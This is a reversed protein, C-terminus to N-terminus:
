GVATQSPSGIALYQLGNTRVEQPSWFNRGDVVAKLGRSALVSWNLKRYEEHATSLIFLDAGSDELRNCVEFGRGTIEHASYLPDHVQFSINKSRLFDAIKFSTSLTDEKVGGRFALGLIVVRPTPIQKLAQELIYVHALDNVARGQEILSLKYGINEASRILFYPYVPTCHGGVGIGPNLLAAEGDTNALRHITKWEVGFRSCYEALQNSLAINVDRYAMGCLKLLEAEEASELSHLNEPPIFTSYIKQAVDTDKSDLGGIVKPTTNLQRLMSGSKIREPSHVLLFDTGWVKGAKELEIKVFKRTAGPPLSTEVSVLHNNKLFPAMAKLCSAFPAYNPAGFDDVLLPISILTAECEVIKSFDSTLTIRNEKRAVEFFSLIDPETSSFRGESIERLLTENLDVALLNHGASIIQAGIAQGIKGFGVIAIKM